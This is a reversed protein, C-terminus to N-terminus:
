PVNRRYNRQWNELASPPRPLDYDPEKPEPPEIDPFELEEEDPDVDEPCGTYHFDRGGCEPCVFHRM